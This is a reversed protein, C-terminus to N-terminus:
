SYEFGHLISRVESCRQSYHTTMKIGLENEDYANYDKKKLVRLCETLDALLQKVLPENTAGIEFAEKHFDEIWNSLESRALDVEGEKALKEARGIIRATRVRLWQIAVYQNSWSVEKDNPRAIHATLAIPGVQTHKITDNYSLQVLAHPLVNDGDKTIISPSALTVEFIIDRSETAFM